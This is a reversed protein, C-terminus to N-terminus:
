QSYGNLPYSEGKSSGYRKAGARAGAAAGVAAGVAQGAAGVYTGFRKAANTKLEDQLMMSAYPLIENLQINELHLKERLVRDSLSNQYEVDEIQRNIQVRSESEAIDQALKKITAQVERIQADSLAANKKALETNARIFTQNYFETNIKENILDTDARTKEWEAKAQGIQYPLMKEINEINQTIQNYEASNKDIRSRQELLDGIIKNVQYLNVVEQNENQLARARYNEKASKMNYYDLAANKIGAGIQGLDPVPPVIGVAPHGKPTTAAQQSQGVTGLAFAPNIGAAKLRSVQNEPSDYIRQEDRWEEQKAVERNWQELNWENQQRMTKRAQHGSMGSSFLNGLANIADGVIPVADTLKFNDEM